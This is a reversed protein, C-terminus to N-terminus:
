QRRRQPSRVACPAAPLIGAEAMDIWQVRLEEAAPGDEETDPGHGIFLKTEAFRVSTVQMTPPNPQHTITRRFHERANLWAM